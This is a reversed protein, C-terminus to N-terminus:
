NTTVNQPPAAFNVKMTSPPRKLKQTPRSLNIHEIENAPELKDGIPVNGRPIQLPATRPPLPGVPIVPMGQLKLKGVTKQRPKESKEETKEKQLLAMREKITMPREENSM